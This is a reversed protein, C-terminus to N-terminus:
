LRLDLTGPATVPPPATPFASPPPEISDDSIRAASGERANEDQAGSYSLSTGAFGARQLDSLLEDAHRRLLDLTGPQEVTLHIHTGEATRTLHFHLLGLEDPRLQLTVPGDPLGAAFAAIDAAIQPPLNPLSATVVQSTASTSHPATMSFPFAGPMVDVDGTPRDPRGSDPLSGSAVKTPFTDYGAAAGTGSTSAPGSPSAVSVKGQRATEQGGSESEQGPHHADALPLPHSRVPHVSPDRHLAPVTPLLSKDPRVANGHDPQVSRRAPHAPLNQISNSLSSAADAIQTAGFDSSEAPVPHAADAHAVGTPPQPVQVPRGSSLSQPEADSPPRAVVDAPASPEISLPNPGRPGSPSPMNAPVTSALGSGHGTGVSVHALPDAHTEPTVTLFGIDVAPLSPATKIRGAIWDDPVPVARPVDNLSQPLDAADHEMRDVAESGDPAAAVPPMMGELVAVFEAADGLGVDLHHPDPDTSRAPVYGAISSIM